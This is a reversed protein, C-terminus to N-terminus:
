QIGLATRVDGMYDTGMVKYIYNYKDIELFEVDNVILKLYVVELTTNSGMNVSPEMKGLELGKSHGMIVLRCKSVKYEGTAADYEQIAGRCDLHHSGPASLELLNQNITRWNLGVDLPKTQGITPSDVEGAIGAGKVSETQFNIKPLTIDVIGLMDNGDNYARFNILKEPIVNGGNTGSM